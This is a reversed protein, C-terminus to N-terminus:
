YDSIGYKGANFRLELDLDGSFSVFDIVLFIARM